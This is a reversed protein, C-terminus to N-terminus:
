RSRARMLYLTRGTGAIAEEALIAFREGFAARFADQTYDPFIDARGALLRQAQSDEKPVFEVVLDGCAEALFAAIGPLPVNGSIALHHVLALAMATVAPGRELLSLRERHAWGLAPAPNALDVLLPLVLTGDRRRCERWNAEVATPDDDIAVVLRGQREAIRSFRGNNAGLDWTPGPAARRLFREVLEQKSALASDSYNTHDYYDGWTTGRPRWRLGAVAGRLGDIIAELSRRPVRVARARAGSDRYRRQSAAHAHIHVLLSPSLRTRAPLLRAALDLPVGDLHARLLSCLRVDRLAMLALPALFHQCFQRYAAWPEGDRYETFSLTDIFVPRGGRFQVNFASADKLVMGRALACSQVRLTALAADQLQTFCWEYPYSIFPIPEPEIVAAAGPEAAWELPAERHAVLLGEGVLEDLLGSDRLRHYDAAGIQNVQRLLRGDRRFLFGAPDRFSSGLRGDRDPMAGM